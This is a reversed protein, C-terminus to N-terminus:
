ESIKAEAKIIAVAKNVSLDRSIDKTDVLEKVKEVELNYAEALKKFEEEIEEETVVVNELEAIKELALRTKVQREAQPRLQERLGDLTMGTYQFYTKMDLGNMRLRSDYDRVFNETETVFMSEPIEAHLREILADILQGEVEKDAAAEKSNKIKAEIDAKYEDLTDFESVDRAFEDDLEPLEVKKIGHLKIAFVAEKGALEAAHYEEPFKVTIDFSEGISHGVVQEEFGPIFSGSGLELSQNEATGGEFKVGDVSGSYDITTIDGNEAARDTIETTRSNRQRVRELEAEVEEPKVEEVKRTVEIGKYEDVTVEPKIAVNAIIVVQEDTIEEIDIEPSDVVEVGSAEVALPYETPLLNNIADEYFFGKGYMKEIMNRPAKGKRFGPITIDASKKRFVKTVEAQFETGPISFKIEAISGEKKTVSILTM